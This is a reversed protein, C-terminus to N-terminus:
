PLMLTSIQSQNIGARVLTYMTWQTILFFIVFQHQRYVHCQMHQPVICPKHFTTKIRPCFCCLEYQIKVELVQVQSWDYCSASSKHKMSVVHLTQCITWFTSPGFIEQSLTIISFLHFWDQFKFTRVLFNSARGLLRRIQRVSVVHTLIQVM